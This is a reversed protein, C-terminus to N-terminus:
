VIADENKLSSKKHEDKTFSDLHLNDLINTQLPGYQSLIENPKDVGCSKSLQIDYTPIYILVVGFTKIKERILCLINFILSM